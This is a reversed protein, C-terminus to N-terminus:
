YTVNEILGNILIKYLVHDWKINNNYLRNYEYELWRKLKLNRWCHWIQKWTIYM